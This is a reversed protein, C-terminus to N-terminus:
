ISTMFRDSLEELLEENELISHDINPIKKIEASIINGDKFPKTSNYKRITPQLKSSGTVPYGSQSNTEEKPSFASTFPNTPNNGYFNQASDDIASIDNFNFNTHNLKPGKFAIM